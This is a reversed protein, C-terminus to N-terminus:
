GAVWVTGNGSGTAQVYVGTGCLLEYSLGYTGAGGGVVIVHGTNDAGDYVVVGTFGTYSVGVVDSAGVEVVGSGTFPIPNARM